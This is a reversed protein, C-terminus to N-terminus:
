ARKILVHGDRAGATIRRFNTGPARSSAWARAVRLVDAAVDARVEIRQGVKLTSLVADFADVAERLEEEAQAGADVVQLSAPDPLRKLLPLRRLLAPERAPTARKAAPQSQDMLMAVPSPAQAPSAPAPPAARPAEAQAPSAAAAAPRERQLNRGAAYVMANAEESRYRELVRNTVAAALCPGISDPRVGLKKAIEHHTLELSKDAEFLAIARQAISGPTPTYSM